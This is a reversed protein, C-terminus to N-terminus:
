GGNVQQILEAGVLDRLDEPTQGEGLVIRIPGAYHALGWAAGAHWAEQWIRNAYTRAEARAARAYAISEPAMDPAPFPRMVGLLLDVLYEPVNVPEAQAVEPTAPKPMADM